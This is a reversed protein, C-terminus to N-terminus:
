CAAIKATDGTTSSVGMVGSQISSTCHGQAVYAMKIPQPKGGNWKNQQTSNKQAPPRYRHHWRPFGVVSWCKDYPHNKGGCNTCMVPWENQHQPGRSYMTSIDINFGLANQLIERQSEEQQFSYCTAEITSLPFQMLLQSRQLGYIDNMGNLFQFLRSEQKYNNIGQLFAAIEPTITLFQSLAWLTFKKGCHAWLLLIIM